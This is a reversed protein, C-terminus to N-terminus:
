VHKKDQAIAKRFEKVASQLHSSSKETQSLESFAIGMQYSINSNEVGKAIAQKFQVVARLYNKQMLLITGMASYADGNDPQLKVVEELNSM